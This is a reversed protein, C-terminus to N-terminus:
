RRSGYLPTVYSWTAVVRRGKGRGRIVVRLITRAVAASSTSTSTGGRRKARRRTIPPFNDPVRVCASTPVDDSVHANLAHSTIGNHQATSHHRHTHHESQISSTVAQHLQMHRFSPGDHCRILSSFQFAPRCDHSQTRRTSITFLFTISCQQRPTTSILVDPQLCTNACAFLDLCTM